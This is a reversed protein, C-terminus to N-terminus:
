AEEGSRYCYALGWQGRAAPRCYGGGTRRDEGTDGQRSHRLLTRRAQGVPLHLRSRSPQQSAVHCVNSPSTCPHQAHRQTTRQHHLNIPPNCTISPLPPDPQHFTQATPGSSSNSNPSTAPHCDRQTNSTDKLAIKSFSRTREALRRCVWTDRNTFGGWGMGHICGGSEM